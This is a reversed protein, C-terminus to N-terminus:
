GVGSIYVRIYADPMKKQTLLEKLKEQALPTVELM